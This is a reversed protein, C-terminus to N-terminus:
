SIENVYRPVVGAINNEYRRASAEDLSYWYGFRGGRKNKIFWALFIIFTYADPFRIFRKTIGTNNEVMTYTTFLSPDVDMDNVFESLSSWGYPFTITTAEMGATNGDIWQKSKFHATEWRLVREVNEAFSRGYNDIVWALGSLIESETGVKKASVIGKRIGLIVGILALGGALFLATNDDMKKAM